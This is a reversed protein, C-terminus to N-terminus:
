KLASLIKMGDPSGLGTCADWGKRATYYPASYVFNNNGETIDHLAGAASVEGYLHPNLFGLNHGLSQNLVAALGAWLPAVGSTGPCLMSAGRFVINYGAAYGAVDPIGRGRHADPNISPQHNAAQQWAPVATFIDSIGGGTAANPTNWVVETFETGKKIATGGCATVWPDSAPYFVHARQDAVACSSGQDGTAAFVTVGMHAAEQFLESMKRIAAPSWALGGSQQLEPCGWSISLVSPANVADHIAGGVAQIWGQETWPAFYVVIRAGRAVSGAVDIDLTAETDPPDTGPTAGGLNVSTLVPAVTGLGAFFSRIDAPDYSNAFEILGITQGTGDAAPFNYHRASWPPTQPTSAPVRGSAPATHARAVKRNDLGFVGDVIPALDDPVQPGFAAAAKEITGSLVVLRRAISREIEVLGRSEGFAVVKALDESAAGYKRAFEGRSLYARDRLRKTYLEM